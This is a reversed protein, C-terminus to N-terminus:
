AKSARRLKDIILKENVSTKSRNMIECEWLVLIHYGLKKLIAMNKKDRERNGNLKNKWFDVNSKPMSVHPCNKKKHQHWFCGHVFVVLKKRPILFDPKGPLKSLNFSYRIKYKWLIVKVAKEPKTNFSKIAAMNQSRKKKSITDMPVESVVNYWM